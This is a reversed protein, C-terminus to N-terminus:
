RGKVCEGPTQGFVRAFCKTFYNPDSFGVEFAIENIKFKGTVLLAAAKKLRVTRIFESITLGTISKTKRYTQPQSLKLASCLAEVDFSADNIHSETVSVVKDIFRREPSDSAFDENEFLLTQNYKRRLNVRMDILKDINLLLFQLDFPKTIYADAGSELGKMQSAPDAM